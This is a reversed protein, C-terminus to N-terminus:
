TNKMKAVALEAANVLQYTIPSATLAPHTGMQFTAIDDAYMRKQICAAVINIIEGASENGRVQGGLIVGTTKEFVLKLKTPAAGPMVGPHRNPGEVVVSICDYGAKKAASETLGATGMALSGVATSWVGVTGAHERWINFLNAGAIRAEQTAISALRLPCSRGGFFSIKEACDGCAFINDISTKMSRDVEIAGSTALKIGADKALTVNPVAGVGLIVVDAPISEGEGLDVAEVKGSGRISAVKSNTKIDVGRAKIFNQMELCFEEDYAASLCYPAIEIVTVNVNEGHNKKIEDAFEIGIFGCGIVVVDRATKLREQLAELYPIDKLIHYVGDQDVGSVPLSGPMSVTAIVLKDYELEVGDVIVKNKAPEIKRAESILLEVGEKELMADPVINKSASGLTGFIYPIGCPIPVQKEQRVVLVSKDPNHRRATIASTAGAASGGIVIVDYKKM